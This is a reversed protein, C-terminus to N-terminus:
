VCEAKIGVVDLLVRVGDSWGLYSNFQGTILDNLDDAEPSYKDIEVSKFAADSINAFTDDNDLMLVFVGKHRLLFRFRDKDSKLSNFKVILQKLAKRM